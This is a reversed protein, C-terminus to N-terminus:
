RMYRKCDYSFLMLIISISSMLFSLLYCNPFKGLTTHQFTDPSLKVSQCAPGRHQFLRPICWPRNAEMKRSNRRHNGRSGSEWSAPSVLALHLPTERGAGFPWVKLESFAAYKHCEPKNVDQEHRVM